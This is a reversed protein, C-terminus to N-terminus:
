KFYVTQPDKLKFSISFPIDERQELNTLPLNIEALLSSSKSKDRLQNLTTRNEAIGSLTITGEASPLSLGSVIIGGTVLRQLEAIVISWQPSNSMIKATDAILTNATQVKQEVKALDPVSPLSSLDDTKEATQQQLTVMLLWVGLFSAIFFIALGVILKTIISSFNVAKHYKYAKQASIPSLSVFDDEARPIIGRVAAGLAVLWAGTNLEPFDIKRDIAPMDESLNIIRSIKENAASEYFNSIKEAEKKLKKEPFDPGLTRSFRIVNNKIIFFNHSSQNAIKLLIAQDKEEAAARTFSEAPFELAILHFTQRLCELYPDIIKKPAEAIFVERSGNGPFIEWSCYADDPKLPLQFNVALKIAEELKPGEINKPFSLVKVYIKDAPISAVAYDVPIRLEKKFELLAQCLDAPNKIEGNIIIGAALPHESYERAAILGTKKNLSLLVLRLCSDSIELGAIPEEPVLIKKFFSLIRM